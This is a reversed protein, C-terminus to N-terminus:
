FVSKKNIFGPLDLPRTASTILRKKNLIGM